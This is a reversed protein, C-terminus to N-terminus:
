TEQGPVASITCRHPGALKLFPLDTGNIIDGPRYHMLTRNWLHIIDFGEAAVDQVIRLMDGYWGDRSIKASREDDYRGRRGWDEDYDRSYGEGQWREAM